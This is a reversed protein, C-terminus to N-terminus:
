QLFLPKRYRKGSCLGNKPKRKSPVWPQGWDNDMSQSKGRFLGAIPTGGSLFGDSGTVMNWVRSGHM